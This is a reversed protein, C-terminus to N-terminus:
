VDATTYKTLSPAGALLPGLATIAGEPTARWARYAADREESEWREFALWRTEDSADVLVDVGLCGDFARTDTLIDGVVKRAEDLADPKFKLELIATVAM